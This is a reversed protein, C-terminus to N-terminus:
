TRPSVNLYRLHRTERYTRALSDLMMGGLFTLASLVAIGTCLILTPQRTILGTEQWEFVVPLALAVSVFAMLAAILSFFAFPRSEKFLRLITLLIRAGDHYTRLKSTSGAPREGYHMIIELMPIRQELIFISMETEIEFRESHAPFSKVLRRSFSRYGSFIDRLGRGFLRQVIINFLKNGFVHAPPFSSKAGERVGIVTDVSGNLIPTVLERARSADYTADADAMVYIDADIDAFMRRVVNGKGQLTVVSVQAGAARAINASNDTSNNDFVFIHAEPLSARFQAIVQAITTAENYCPLLVAITPTYHAM